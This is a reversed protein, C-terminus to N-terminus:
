ADLVLDGRPTSICLLCHGAAVEADPQQNLEVAGSVVETQCSGCSGARCGSVVEVGHGEAFELLSDAGPDWALRRGSRSFTVTVPPGPVTAPAPATRRTLTAPGFSEYHIDGPDVGLAELGPVLEEMMAKPGCVYFQYRGLPLTARLLPISVRGRHQFDVGEVDADGPRSYCVHLHFNAHRAALERLPGRMLQEDGDRVGYFLWVERGCDGEFLEALMSLMPTIGIGGGVLVAPLPPERVLCFHGAPARVWLRTGEPVHDHLYNSSLGPPLDTRGAPPPVRKVTIRYRDPRPADSLSYCRVIRKPAQTGPDPVELRFTLYQGPRFPPLPEGDAPVLHFSCVDGRADERVRRQVVFERFGEWAPGPAAPGPARDEPMRQVREPVTGAPTDLAKFERRRRLYGVLLALAVQGAIALLILLALTATSM